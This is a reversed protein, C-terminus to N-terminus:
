PFRTSGPGAWGVDPAMDLLTTWQPWQMVGCMPMHAGGPLRSRLSWGDTRDRSIRPGRRRAPDKLVSGGRVSACRRVPSGVRFPPFLLM